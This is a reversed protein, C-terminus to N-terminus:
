GFLAESAGTMIGGSSEGAKAMDVAAASTGQLAQMAAASQQALARSERIQQVVAETNLGQPLINETIALSRIIADFDFNDKVTPEIPLIVTAAELARRTGQSEFQRLQATALPGTYHWRINEGRLIEPPEPIRGAELETAFLRDLVPDIGEGSYRGIVPAIVATKEGRMEMVQTATMDAVNRNSNMLQTLMLYYQVGFAEKIGERKEIYMDKGIPYNQGTDIPRVFLNPNSYANKGGPDLDLIGDLSSPYNVPPNTARHAAKLLTYAMENIMKVDSMTDMSPCRGYVSHSVKTHRWVALPFRQYGKLSLLAEKERTDILVWASMYKHPIAKIVDFENYQKTPAVAWLMKVRQTPNEKFLRQESEPLTGLGFRDVVQKITPKFERFFTDVNGWQDEALKSEGPHMVQYQMRSENINEESYLIGTGIGIGNRTYQIGESYFNSRALAVFMARRTEYLWQRATQDRTLDENILRVDFWITAPSMTYGYLGNAGLTVANPATGDYIYQGAKFNSPNVLRLDEYEPMIYKGIDEVMGMWEERDRTLADNMDMLYRVFGRVSTDQQVEVQPM